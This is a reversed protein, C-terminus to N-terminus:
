ARLERYLVAGGFFMLVVILVKLPEINDGTSALPAQKQSMDAGSNQTAPTQNQTTDTTATPPDVPQEPEPALEVTLTFSEGLWTRLDLPVSDTAVVLPGAVADAPITVTFSAPSLTSPPLSAPSGNNLTNLYIPIVYTGGPLVPNPLDATRVVYNDIVVLGPVEGVSACTANGAHPDESCGWWNAPASIAVPSTNEVGVINSALRNQTVVVNTPSGSANSSSRIATNTGIIENNQITASDIAGILRIGATNETGSTASYGAGEIFNNAITLTGVSQGVGAAAPAQIAIATDTNDIVAMHNNTIEIQSFGGNVRGPATQAIAIGKGIFENNDILIKGPNPGDLPNGHGIFLSTSGFPGEHLESNKITIDSRWDEILIGNGRNGSVKVNDLTIPPEPLVTPTPTVVNAAGAFYIGYDTASDVAGTGLVEVDTFAVPYTTPNAATAGSKVLVSARIATASKRSADQLTVGTINVPGFRNTNIRIMGDSAFGGNALGGDIITQGSGAGIITLPKSIVVQLVSYTGPGITITDGAAAATVASSISSYSCGSLCVDLTAAHASEGGVVSIFAAIVVTFRAIQKIM